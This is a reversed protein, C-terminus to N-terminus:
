MAGMPIKSTDIPRQSRIRPNRGDVPDSNTVASSQAFADNKGLYNSLAFEEYADQSCERNRRCNLSIAPSTDQALRNIENIKLRGDVAVAIVVNQKAPTKPASALCYNCILRNQSYIFGDM